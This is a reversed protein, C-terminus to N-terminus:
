DRSLKHSTARYLEDSEYFGMVEPHIGFDQINRKKYTTEIRKRYSNALEEWRHVPLRVGNIYDSGVFAAVAAETAAHRNRYSILPRSPRFLEPLAHRRGAMAKAMEIALFPACTFGDRKTGNCFWVGRVDSEGLLPFTDLCVPRFGPARISFAAGLFGTHFESTMGNLLGSIVQVKPVEEEPSLWLANSAGLYFRGNGFPVLHMGCGGGRDMTRVVADLQDLGAPTRVGPPFYVDLGRGGGFFLRPVTDKLAPIPNILSQAYAGNALVVTQTVLDEGESLRLLKDGNRDVVMEKVYAPIASCAPLHAVTEDLAEIVSRSDVCGDPIRLAKMPRAAPDAALFKLDEPSVCSYPIREREMTRQLYAFSREETATGRSSSLVYTGWRVLVSRSSHASLIEAHADWLALASRAMSLRAALPPEELSGSEIEGWVNIMAAAALSASGCRLPPGVVAIRTSSSERALTMALTMGLAGNGVIVIDLVRPM